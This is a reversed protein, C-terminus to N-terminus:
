DSEATLAYLPVSELVSIARPPAMRRVWEVDRLRELRAGRWGGRRIAELLPRPTPAGLLPLAARVDPEYPAHHDHPVDLLRRLLGSAAERLRRVPDVAHIGELLLLRGGPRTVARWAALTGGPDPDTWLMSREVVADFPGPPPRDAPGVVFNVGAPALKERARALMAESLDLATV